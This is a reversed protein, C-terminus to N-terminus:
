LALFRFHWSYLARLIRLIGVMDGDGIPQHYESCYWTM